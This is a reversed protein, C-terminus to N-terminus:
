ERRHENHITIILEIIQFSCVPASFIKRKRPGCDSISVNETAMCSLPLQENFFQSRPIKLMSIHNQSIFNEVDISYLGCYPELPILKNM